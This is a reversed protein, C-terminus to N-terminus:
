AAGQGANAQDDAANRATPQTGDDDPDRGRDPRTGCGIEARQRPASDDASMGITDPSRAFPAFSRAQLTTEVTM